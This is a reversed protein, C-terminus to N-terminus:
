RELGRGRARPKRVPADYRELRREAQKAEWRDDIHEYEKPQRGQKILERVQEIDSRKTVAQWERKYARETAEQEEKLQDIDPLSELEASAQAYSKNIRKLAIAPESGECAGGLERQTRAKEQMIESIKEDIAKKKKGSFMGLQAYEEKLQEIAQTYQGIKQTNEQIRSSKERLYAKHDKLEIAERRTREVQVAIDVYKNKLSILQGAVQEATLEPQNTGAHVAIAHDRQVAPREAPKQMTKNRVHGADSGDEKRQEIPRKPQQQHEHGTYVIDTSISRETRQRTASHTQRARQTGKLGTPANGTHEIGEQATPRSLPQPPRESPTSNIENKHQDASQKALRRQEKMENIQRQLEHMANRYEMNAATVEDNYRGRETKIGRKELATAGKGMHITAIQEKGQRKYSRHDLRKSVNKRELQRNCAAAWQRRWIEANGSDNWQEVTANVRDHKSKKPNNKGKVRVYDRYKSDTEVLHKTLYKPNGKGNKYYPLQKEWVGDPLEQLEKATFGKEDGQKNMCLYVKETKNQWKGNIDLPRLTLMIHAHPNGDHKDHIVIDAIMGKAVFTNQVYERLLDIHDKYNLEVPLAIEIERALQAKSDKEAKEVANWLTKRDLYEKPAKKPLLIETYIVGGKRTYDHEIGQRSDILKEASRYAAAAVASRGTSRSIIKISCHYIAM